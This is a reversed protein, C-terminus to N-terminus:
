LQGSKKTNNVIKEELNPQQSSLLVAAVPGSPNPQWSTVVSNSTSTSGVVSATDSGSSVVSSCQPFVVNPHQGSPWVIAVPSCKWPHSIILWSLQVMEYKEQQGSPTVAPLLIEDNILIYVNYSGGKWNLTILRNCQALLTLWKSDIVSTRRKSDRMMSYNQNEFLSSNQDRMIM